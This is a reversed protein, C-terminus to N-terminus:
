SLVSLCSPHTWSVHTSIAWLWVCMVISGWIVGDVSNYACVELSLTVGLICAGMCSGCFPLCLTVSSQSVVPVRMTVFVFVGSLRSKYVRVLSM